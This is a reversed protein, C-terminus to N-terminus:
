DRGDNGGTIQEISAGVSRAFDQRQRRYNADMGVCNAVAHLAGATTEVAQAACQALNAVWRLGICAVDAWLFSESYAGDQNWAPQECDDHDFDEDNM